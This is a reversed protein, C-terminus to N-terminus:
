GILRLLQRRNTVLDAITYGDLTRLFAQTSKNLADKLLCAPLLPCNNAACDIVDFTNEMDRVVKGVSIDHPRRALYIGGGRGQVSDLYGLTVLKHVVKVLHNRSVNYREAISKITGRAEPDLALYMMVRLSLDTHKTLQM